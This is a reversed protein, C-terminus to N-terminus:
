ILQLCVLELENFKDVIKNKLEINAQKKGNGMGSALGTLRTYNFEVTM